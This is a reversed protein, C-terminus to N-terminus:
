YDGGWSEGAASADFWAPPVPGPDSEVPRIGSSVNADPYKELAAKVSGFSELYTKKQMGRNVSYKPYRGFGYVVFEGAKYKSPEVALYDYKM